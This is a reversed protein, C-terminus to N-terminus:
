LKYLIYSKGRFTGNRYIYKFILLAMKITIWSPSLAFKWINILWNLFFIILLKKKTEFKRIIDWSECWRRFVTTNFNYIKRDYWPFQQFSYFFSNVLYWKPVHRAPFAMTEIKGFHDDISPSKRITALLVGFQFQCIHEFGVHGPPM